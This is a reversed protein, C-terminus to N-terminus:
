EEEGESDAHAEGGGGFGDSKARGAAQMAFDGFPLGELMQAALMFGDRDRGDFERERAETERRFKELGFLHKAVKKPVGMAKATTSYADGIRKRVASSVENLERHLEFIEEFHAVAEAQTLHNKGSRSKDLTVVNDAGGRKGPKAAKKVAKAKKAPPPKGGAPKLRNAM